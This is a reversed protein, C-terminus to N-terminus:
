QNQNFYNSYLNLLKCAECTFKTICDEIQNGCLFHGFCHYSGKNIKAVRGNINILYKKKINYMEKNKEMCNKCMFENPSCKKRTIESASEIEINKKCFYLGYDDNFEQDITEETLLHQYNHGNNIFGSISICFTTLDNYYLFGFYEGKIIYKPPIKLNNFDEHLQIDYLQNKLYFNSRLLNFKKEIPKEMTSNQVNMLSKTDDFTSQFDTNNLVNFFSNNLIFSINLTNSNSLFSNNFVIEKNLLNETSTNKKLIYKKAELTTENSNKVLTAQLHLNIEYEKKIKSIELPFILVM